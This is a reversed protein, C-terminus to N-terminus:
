VRPHLVVATGLLQTRTPSLACGSCKRPPTPLRLMSAFQQLQDRCGMDQHESLANQPGLVVGWRQPCVLGVLGPSDLVLQSRRTCSFPAVNFSIRSSFSLLSLETGSQERQGPGLRRRCSGSRGPVVTGDRQERVQSIPHCGAPRMVPCMGRALGPAAQLSPWPLPCNLPILLKGLGSRIFYGRCFIPARRLAAGTAGVMGLGAADRPSRSGRYGFAAARCSGPQELTQSRCSPM